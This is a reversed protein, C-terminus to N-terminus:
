MSWADTLEILHVSFREKYKTIVSLLLLNDFYNILKIKPNLINFTLYTCFGFRSNHQKGTVKWSHVIEIIQPRCDVVCLSGSEVEM